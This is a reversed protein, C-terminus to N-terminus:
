SSLLDNMRFGTVNTSHRYTQVTMNKYLELWRWRARTLLIRRVCAMSRGCHCGAPLVEDCICRSRISRRDITAALYKWYTCTNSGTTSPSLTRITVASTATCFTLSSSGLLSSQCPMVNEQGALFFSWANPYTRVAAIEEAQRM